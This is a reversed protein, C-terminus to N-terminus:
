LGDLPPGKYESTDCWFNGPEDIECLWEISSDNSIENEELLVYYQCTRTMTEYDYPPALIDLFAALDGVASIEHFNGSEPTLVCCEDEESLCISDKRRVPLLNEKSASLTSKKRLIDEESMAARSYSNVKMEGYIPKCLGYMGPHDHLPLKAGRRMVFIGVSMVRDEYLKVYSVPAQFPTVGRRFVSPEFNVDAMRIQNLLSKIPLLSETDFTVGKSLKSFISHATKLVKQIPFTM